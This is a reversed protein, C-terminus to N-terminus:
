QQRAARSVDKPLGLVREGIINRQIESSGAEITNGKSRLFSRQWLGDQVSWPSDGLIQGYLGQMGLAAETIRQNPESWLLKGISGEPGPIGGQIQGSLSRLGHYKLVTTEIYSQALQQRFVPDEIAPKGSRRSQRAMEIMMKVNREYAAAMTADGVVREFMLTTIAIRWGDGEKGVLMELPVKVDEMFLENFEQEGTIQTIPRVEVGPLSMDLLLYSLGKHKPVNPDTRVLIICYASLHAFSTWVKQGNLIYYDKERVARTSVNAVDSGANPESFAQCWIHTGDLIKPLFERKQEENGCVFITPVAMGHTVVGPIRLEICTSALAQLVIVEEMLTKGQGGYEKPYHLGAYGAESLKKQFDRYARGWEEQSEFHKYRGPDLDDPLNKELWSVFEQRFAEQEPTFRYDMKQQEKRRHILDDCVPKTM